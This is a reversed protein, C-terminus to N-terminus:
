RFARRTRGGSAAPCSAPGPGRVPVLWRRLRSVARILMPSDMCAEYTYLGVEPLWMQGTYQFRGSNGSGPIGYEDYTNIALKNGSSDSVSIISGREDASLFRRDTTGTGEYWVIPQEIGPADVYRRLLTDSGDYEAIPNVGDYGFRTTGSSGAVEFLRM